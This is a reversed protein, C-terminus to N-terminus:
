MYWLSTFQSLLALTSNATIWASRVSWHNGILTLPLFDLPNRWFDHLVWILRFDQDALQSYCRSIGIAERHEPKYINEYTPTGRSLFFYKLAEELFFTQSVSSNVSYAGFCTALLNRCLNPVRNVETKCLHMYRAIGREHLGRLHLFVDSEAPRVDFFLVTPFQLIKECNFHWIVLYEKCDTHREEVNKSSPICCSWQKLSKIQIILDINICWATTKLYTVGFQFNLITSSVFCYYYYYYYYYYHFYM